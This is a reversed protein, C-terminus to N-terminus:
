KVMNHYRGFWYPLTYTTAPEMSNANAGSLNEFTTGNFKHVSREDHPLVKIQYINSPDYPAFTKFNVESSANKADTLSTRKGIIKTPDVSLGGDDVVDSRAGQIYAAYRRTDIPHRALQWSATELLSNGYADKQLKEPYGLQYIYYWLPNESHSMSHWWGDMAFQYKDLLSKDTEIQFILYYALMAMEEDSYNLCQMAHRTKEVQSPNKAPDLRYINDDPRADENEVLWMWRAWYEGALEAYMFPTGEALLLYEDQWKKEGTMYYALKFADLMVLSNLSNDEVTFDSNFYDRTTKGWKTGQGTADMLGYGNDLLHQSYNKTTSVVLEKLAKEEPNNENLIDFALKYMFLHGIIEDTSTDGKYCLDKVEYQKGDVNIVDKLVEPIPLNGLNLVPHQNGTYDYLRDAQAAVTQTGDANRLFFLGDHYPTNEIAPITFTRAIYGTLTRKTTAPKDTTTWDNPYVPWLSFLFKGGMYHDDTTKGADIGYFGIHNAPSGPYNYVSFVAGDKLYDASCLNGKGLRTNSLHRIRADVEGDRGSVNAIFLVAKLAKLASARAEATEQVSAGSGKQSLVAYRMLEGAGYMSTWLGDNDSIEREWKQGDWNSGAALGMRSVDKDTQASMVYAKDAYDMKVMKIHNVDGSKGVVWVGWKGDNEIYVPSKGDDPLYRDGMFYQVKDRNTDALSNDIRKLYLGNSGDAFNAPEWFTNGHKFSVLNASSPDASAKKVGAPIESSNKVDAASYREVIKQLSDAEKEPKGEYNVIPKRVFSKDKEPIAAVNIVKSDSIEPNVSSHVKITVKGIKLAKLRGYKDISVIDSPEATWVLDKDTVIKFGAKNLDDNGSFFIVDLVRSDGVTMESTDHLPISIKVPEVKEVEEGLVVTNMSFVMLSVLLLLAKLKKM